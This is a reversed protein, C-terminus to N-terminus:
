ILRAVRAAALAYAPHDVPCTYCGTRKGCEEPMRGAGCHVACIDNEDVDDDAPTAQIGLAEYALARAAASAGAAVGGVIVLRLSDKTQM